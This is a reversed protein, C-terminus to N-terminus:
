ANDKESILQRYYEADEQTIPQRYQNCLGAGLMESIHYACRLMEDFCASPHASTSLQMFMTLGSTTMDHITDPDFNGPEIMNAMSFLAQGEEDLRHFINMRGFTLGNARAASNIRDGTLPESSKALIHLVIIDVNSSNQAEKRAEQNEAPRPEVSSQKVSPPEIPSQVIEDGADLQEFDEERDPLDADRKFGSEFRQARPQLVEIDTPEDDDPVPALDAALGGSFDDDDNDRAVIRVKGVGEDLEDWDRASFEPLEENADFLNSKSRRRRRRGAFYIALIFVIGVALLIWRLNEM